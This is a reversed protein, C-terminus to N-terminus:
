HKTDGRVGAFSSCTWLSKTAVAVLREGQLRGPRLELWAM